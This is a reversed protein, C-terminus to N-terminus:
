NNEQLKSIFSYVSNHYGPVKKKKKERMSVSCPRNVVNLILLFYVRLVVFVSFCMLNVFLAKEKQQQQQQEYSDHRKVGRDGLRRVRRRPDLGRPHLDIAVFQFNKRAEGVRWIIRIMWVPSFSTQKITQNSKQMMREWRCTQQHHSSCAGLQVTKDPPERDIGGRVGVCM